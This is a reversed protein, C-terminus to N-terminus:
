SETRQRRVIWAVVEILIWAGVIGAAIPFTAMLFYGMMGLTLLAHGIDKGGVICPHAATLDVKCGYVNGIIDAAAMSLLPLLCALLALSLLVRLLRM